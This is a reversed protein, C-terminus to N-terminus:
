SMGGRPPYIGYLPTIYNLTSFPQMINTPLNMGSSGVLLSGNIQGGNLTGEATGTALFIDSPRTPTGPANTQVYNGTALHTANTPAADTAAATLVPVATQLATTVTHSHYALNNRTLTVTETGSTQGLTYNSLGPGQGVGVPVRGKLDPLGFTTQGDGGYTTGLLSFLADNQSISILQGHCFSYGRPAFNPAWLFIAGLYVGDM